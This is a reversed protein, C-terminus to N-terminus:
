KWYGTPTGEEGEGLAALAEDQSPVSQRTSAGKLTFISLHRAGGELTPTSHGPKVSEPTGIVLAAKEFGNTSVYIVSESLAGTKTTNTNTM